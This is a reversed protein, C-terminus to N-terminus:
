NGSIDDRASREVNQKKRGKRESGRGNISYGTEM